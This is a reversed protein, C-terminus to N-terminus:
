RNEKKKLVGYGSRILLCSMLPIFAPNLHQPLVTWGIGTVLIAAFNIFHYYYAAKNLKKVTSLGVGVWHFPHLWLISLNPWIGPHESLFCLFFLVCGAAGAM